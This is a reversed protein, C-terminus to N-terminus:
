QLNWDGEPVSNFIDGNIKMKGAISPHPRRPRGPKDNITLVTIEVQHDEFSAPLELVLKRGTLQTIRREMEM